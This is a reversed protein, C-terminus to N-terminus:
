LVEFLLLFRNFRLSYMSPWWWTRNWSIDKDWNCNTEFDCDWQRETVPKLTTVASTAPTTAFAVDCQGAKVQIDDVAVDARSINGEVTRLVFRFNTPMGNLTVDFSNWQDYKTTTLNAVWKLSTQGPLTYLVMLNPTYVNNEALMHYFFKLCVTPGYNLIESQLLGVGNSQSDLPVYVYWGEATGTTHDALPGSNESETKGSNRTWLVSKRNTSPPVNTWGCFDSM